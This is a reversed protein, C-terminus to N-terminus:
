DSGSFPAGKKRRRARWGDPSIGRTSPGILRALRGSRLGAPAAESRPLGSRDVADEGIQGGIYRDIPTRSGEGFRAREGKEREEIEVKAVSAGAGPLFYAQYIFLSYM